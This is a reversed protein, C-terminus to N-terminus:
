SQFAHARPRSTEIWQQYTLPTRDVLAHKVLEEIQRWISPYEIDVPHIGIRLLPTNQLRGFLSANWIRSMARRWFSRVSWVLSQSACTRGAPLDTVSGLRTTYDFGLKCLAVEAAASLLWAPAVFGGPDLGLKRFEERAQSVLRLADAGHIDFFEGEDATYFRTALKIRLSEQSKRERRHFYGHIVPEDGTNVREQLWHCFDADDLFHGRRHHDPVVLLSCPGAGLAALRELIQETAERTVPSVDHISIVLSRRSPPAESSLPDAPPAPFPTIM